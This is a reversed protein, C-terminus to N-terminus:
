AAAERNRDAVASAAPKRSPLAEASDAPEPREVRGEVRGIIPRGNAALTQKSISQNEELLREILQLESPHLVQHPLSDFNRFTWLLRMRQPLNPELYRTGISTDLELVGALLKEIWM